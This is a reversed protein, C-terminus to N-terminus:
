NNTLDFFGFLSPDLRENECFAKLIPRGKETSRVLGTRGGVDEVLGHSKLEQLFRKATRPDKNAAGRQTLGREQRTSQETLKRAIKEALAHNPHHICISLASVKDTTAGRYALYGLAAEGHHVGTTTRIGSYDALRRFDAGTLTADTFDVEILMANSFNSKSLDANKFSVGELLTSSFDASALNAHAFNVDTLGAKAFSAEQLDATQDNHCFSIRNLVVEDLAVPKGTTYTLMASVSDQRTHYLRLSADWILTLYMGLVEGPADSNLLDKFSDLLKTRVNESLSLVFLKM